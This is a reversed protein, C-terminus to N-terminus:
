SIHLQPGLPQCFFAGKKGIKRLKGVKRHKEWIEAMKAGKERSITDLIKFKLFNQAEYKKYLSQVFIRFDETFHPTTLFM